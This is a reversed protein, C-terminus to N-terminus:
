VHQEESHRLAGALYDHHEGRCVECALQSFRAAYDDGTEEADGHEPPGQHSIKRLVLGAALKGPDKDESCVCRSEREAQAHDSAVYSPVRFLRDDAGYKEEGVTSPVDSSWLEKKRFFCRQISGSTFRVNNTQTQADQGDHHQPLIHLPFILTSITNLTNTDLYFGLVPTPFAHNLKRREAQILGVPLLFPEPINQSYITYYSTVSNHDPFSM